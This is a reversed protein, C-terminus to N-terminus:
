IIDSNTGTRMLITTDGPEYILLWDSEIHCELCGAYDGPLRNPRDPFSHARPSTSNRRLARWVRTDLLALVM